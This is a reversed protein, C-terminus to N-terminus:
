DRSRPTGPTRLGAPQGPGVALEPCPPAAAPAPEPPSCSSPPGAGDEPLEGKPSVGEGDEAWQGDRAMPLKQGLAVRM